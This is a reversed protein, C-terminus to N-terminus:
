NSTEDQMIEFILTLSFSTVVFNTALSLRRDSLQEINFSSCALDDFLINKLAVKQIKELDNIQGKTLGSNWVAMGQEALSRIEKLYYDLIIQPEMKLSKLRRLLWMKSMARTYISKTNAFWRLDLSIQIGLLKCEEMVELVQGDRFSHEPPFDYKRSKNFIMVKSKSANIKM